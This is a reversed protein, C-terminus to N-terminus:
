RSTLDPFRGGAGPKMQLAHVFLAALTDAAEDLACVFQGQAISMEAFREVMSGLAAAAIEADLSPDALGRRQMGQIWAEIQERHRRSRGYRAAAVHEDYRAVQEVLRMMRAETQYRGLHIHLGTRLQEWPSASSDPAFISSGLPEALQDDLTEAIERFVQDKSDFYHYFAGPSLDARETIDSIRAELFGDAEFIEKAAHVLRARTQVGKRSRPGGQAEGDGPRAVAPVGRRGRITSLEDM